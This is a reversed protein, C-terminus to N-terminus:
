VVSKRDRHSENLFWEVFDKGAPAAPPQEMYRTERRLVKRIQATVDNFDKEERKPFFMAEIEEKTEDEVEMYYAEVFSHYVSEADLYEKEAKGSPNQTWPAGSIGDASVVGNM